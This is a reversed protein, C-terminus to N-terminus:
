TMDGWKPECDETEDESEEQKQEPKPLISYLDTDHVLVGYETMCGHKADLIAAGLDHLDTNSLVSIDFNEPLNACLYRLAYHSDDEVADFQYEDMTRLARRLGAIDHEDRDEMIAKVKTVSEPSLDHLQWAVENLDPLAEMDDFSFHPLASHMTFCVLDEYEMGCQEAFHWIEEFACPFSFWAANQREDPAGLLLSFFTGHPRGVEVSLNLCEYHDPECYYDGVFVGHNRDAMMMGIRERDLCSLLEEPCNEIEPLMENDICFQGLEAFSVARVTPVTELNYLLPLLDDPHDVQLRDAVAVFAARKEPPMQEYQNILANLRYIDMHFAEGQMAAPFVMTRDDPFRIKVNSNGVQNRQRDLIDQLELPAKPFEVVTSVGDKYISIKM